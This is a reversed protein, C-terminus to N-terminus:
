ANARKKLAQKAKVAERLLTYAVAFLPISILMGIIGLLGGGVTIAVLVWIAPLGVTNGVVRPYIVNGEIQQLIVFFVVFGFAQGLGNTLAIM